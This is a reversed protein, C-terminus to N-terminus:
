RVLNADLRGSAARIDSLLQAVMSACDEGAQSQTIRAHAIRAFSLMVPSSISKSVRAPDAFLGHLTELLQKMDDAGKYDQRMEGLKNWIADYPKIRWPVSHYSLAQLAQATVAITRDEMEAYVTLPAETMAVLLGATLPSASLPATLSPPQRRAKRRGKTGNDNDDDGNDGEYDADSPASRSLLARPSLKRGTSRGLSRSGSSIAPTSSSPSSPASSRSSLLTPPSAPRPPSSSLTDGRDAVESSRHSSARPSGAESQRPSAGRVPSQDGRVWSSRPSSNESGPPSVRRSPSQSGGETVTTTRPSTAASARSSLPGGRASPRRPSNSSSVDEGTTTSVRPSGGVVRPSPRRPSSASQQEEEEVVVEDRVVSSLNSLSPVATVSSLPKPSRSRPLEQSPGPSRSRPLSATASSTSPPPPRANRVTPVPSGFAAPPGTKSAKVEEYSDAFPDDEDM